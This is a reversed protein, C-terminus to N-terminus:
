VWVSGVGRVRQKREDKVRCALEAMAVGRVCALEGMAVSRQRKKGAAVPRRRCRQRGARSRRRRFESDGLEIQSQHDRENAGSGSVRAV